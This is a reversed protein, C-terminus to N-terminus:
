IDTRIDSYKIEIFYTHEAPHYVFSPMSAKSFIFFM